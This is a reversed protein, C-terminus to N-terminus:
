YDGGPSVGYWYLQIEKEDFGLATLDKKVTLLLDTLSNLDLPKVEDRYISISKGLISNDRFFCYPTKDIIYDYLEDDNLVDEQLEKLINKMEEPTNYIQLLQIIQNYSLIIQDEDDKVIGAIIFSSSSSNSVFGLRIKM